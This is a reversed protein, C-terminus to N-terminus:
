IRSTQQLNELKKWLKTITTSLQFILNRVRKRVLRGKLGVLRSAQCFPGKKGIAAVIQVLKPNEAVGLFTKKAALNIARSIM